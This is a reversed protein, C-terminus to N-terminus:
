QIIYTKFLVDQIEGVKPPLSENIKRLLDARIKDRGGPEPLEMLTLSSMHESFLNTLKPERRTLEAGLAANTEDYEFVISAKILREADTGAINVTVEIPKETIAGVKTLAEEALRLSDELAKQAIAAEDVPKPIILYALAGQLVVIGVIIGIVMIFNGGKKPEEEGAPPAAAPAADKKKEDAM